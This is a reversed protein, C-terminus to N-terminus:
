NVASKIILGFGFWDFLVLDAMGHYKGKCLLHTNESKVNASRRRQEENRAEKRFQNKKSSAFLRNMSKM